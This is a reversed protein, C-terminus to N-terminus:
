RRRRPTAPRPGASRPGSRPRRRAGGRRAARRAGRARSAGRWSWRVVREARDTWLAAGAARDPGPVRRAPLVAGVPGVPQARHARLRPGLRPSRPTSCPGASAWPRPADALVFANGLYGWRGPRRGPTPMRTFELLNLMGVPEGDSRRWGRWGSRRSGSGGRPSTTRSARTTRRAAGGSRSGPGASRPWSRRRRPDAPDVREISWRRDGMPPCPVPVAPRDDPGAGEARLPVPSRTGAM